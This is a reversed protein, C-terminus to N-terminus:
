LTSGQRTHTQPRASTQRQLTFSEAVATAKKNAGWDAMSRRTDISGLPTESTSARGWFVHTLGREGRPTPGRAMHPM